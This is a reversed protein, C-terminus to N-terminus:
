DSKKWQAGRLEDYTIHEDAVIIFRKHRPWQQWELHRPIPMPIANAIPNDLAAESQLIVDISYGPEMIPENGTASFPKTHWERILGNTNYNNSDEQSLAIFCQQLDHQSKGVSDDMHELWTSVHILEKVDYPLNKEPDIFLGPLPNDPIENTRNLRGLRQIMAPIPAYESVLLDASLDLSMEAVQTAVAVMPPHEPKFGNIVTSHRKIRDRYKFRSHYLEVPLGLERLQDFDEMARAITNVIWLVKKGQAVVDKAQEFAVERSSRKIYYRPANEREHPGEQTILNGRAVQLKEIAAKRGPPLTATMILVPAHSFVTLFELLYTFLAPSYSHVEDFIFAANLLSPLSYIGTRKNELLGLVTHVTCVVAPVPWTGLANITVALNNREETNSPPMNQLLKYDIAARSHVLMSDFDPDTLYDAFGESATGTTPYCFFLRKGRAHHAAWLYAGATKGSGCGAEVVTTHEGHDAMDKQFKRPEHEGLRTKVVNELQEQTLVEELSSILDDTQATAGAPIASGALDACMFTSSLCAILLQEDRTFTDRDVDRTFHTLTRKIGRQLLSIEVTGKTPINGLSFKEQGLKLLEIFDQHDCPVM